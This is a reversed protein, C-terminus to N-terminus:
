PKGDKDLIVNAKEKRKKKGEGKAADGHEAVQVHHAEVMTTAKGNNRKIETELRFFFFLCSFFLFFFSFFFLLARHFTRTVQTDWVWGLGFM